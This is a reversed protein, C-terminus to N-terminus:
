LVASIATSNVPMVLRKPANTALSPMSRATSPAFDVGDDALIAGALRRQHVDQEAQQLGVFALDPQVALRRHDGVRGAGDLGAEAHHMLMELQHRRERDGVIDKEAHFDTTM